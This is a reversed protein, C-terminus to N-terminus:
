AATSSSSSMLLPIMSSDVMAFSALHDVCGRMRSSSAMTLSQMPAPCIRSSVSTSNVSGSGAGAGAWFVAGAFAGSASVNIGDSGTIPTETIPDGSGGGNNNTNSKNKDALLVPVLIAGTGLALVVACVGATKLFSSSRNGM